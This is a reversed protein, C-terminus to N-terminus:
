RCLIKVTLKSNRYHQTVM